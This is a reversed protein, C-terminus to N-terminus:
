EEEPQDAVKVEFRFMDEDCKLCAAFYGDSVKDPDQTLVSNCRFCRFTKIQSETPTSM